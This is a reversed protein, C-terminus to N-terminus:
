NVFNHLPAAITPVVLASMSVDGLDTELVITIIDVQSKPTTEGGFSSIYLNEKHHPTSKLQDALAHTVFSRQAGEDFLINALVRNNNARVSAVATKLLCMSNHESNGLLTHTTATLNTSASTTPVFTQSTARLTSQVPPHTNPPSALPTEKPEGNM